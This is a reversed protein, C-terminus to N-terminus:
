RWSWPEPTRTPVAVANSTVVLQVSVGRQLPVSGGPQASVAGAYAMRLWVLCAEFRRNM